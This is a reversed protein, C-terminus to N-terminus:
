VGEDWVRLIRQSLPPGTQGHVLTVQSNTSQMGFGVTAVGAPVGTLTFSANIPCFVTNPLIEPTLGGFSTDTNVLTVSGTRWRFNLAVHSSTSPATTYITGQFEVRYIESTGASTFTTSMMIVETGTVSGTDTALVVNALLRSKPAKLALGAVSASNVTTLATDTATAIAFEQSPGNPPDTLAAYPIGWVATAAM